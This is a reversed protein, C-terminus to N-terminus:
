LLDVNKDIDVDNSSYTIKTCIWKVGDRWCGIEMTSTTGWPCDAVAVVVLRGWNTMLAVDAVDAAVAPPKTKPGTVAAPAIMECGIRILALPRKSLYSDKKVTAFVLAFNCQSLNKIFSSLRPSPNKKWARNSHKTLSRNSDLQLTAIPWAAWLITLHNTQTSSLQASSDRIPQLSPLPKKNSSFFRFHIWKFLIFCNTFSASLALISNSLICLMGSTKELNQIVCFPSLFLQNLM